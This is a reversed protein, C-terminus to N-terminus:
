KVKNVAITRTMKLFGVGRGMLTMYRLFYLYAFVQSLLVGATCSWRVAYHLWKLSRVNREEPTKNFRCYARSNLRSQYSEDSNKPRYWSVVAKVALAVDESWVERAIKEIEGLDGLGIYHKGEDRNTYGVYNLRSEDRLLMPRDSILIKGLACSTIQDMLEHASGFRLRLALRCSEMFATRRRVSWYLPPVGASNLRQFNIVRLAPEAEDIDLGLFSDTWYSIRRLGLLPRSSTVYKGTAVVYESNSRLYHFADELFESFFADEDNGIAVLEDDIGELFTLLRQVISNQGPTPVYTVSISCNEVARRNAEQHETEDSADLIAIRAELAGSQYFDLVRKLKGSRNFTPIVILNM